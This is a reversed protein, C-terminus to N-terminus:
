DILNLIIIVTPIVTIVSIWYINIILNHSDVLKLIEKDKTKITIPLPTRFLYEGGVWGGGKDGGIYLGDLDENYDPKITKIYDIFSVYRIQAIIALVFLYIVTGGILSVSIIDTNM